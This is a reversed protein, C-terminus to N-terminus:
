ATEKRNRYHVTNGSYKAYRERHMKPIQSNSGLFYPLKWTRSGDKMQAEKCRYWTVNLLYRCKGKANAGAGHCLGSDFIMVSAPPLDPHVQQPDVASPAASSSAASPKCDHKSDAAPSVVTLGFSDGVGENHHFNGTMNCAINQRDVDVHLPQASSKPPNESTQVAMPIYAEGDLTKAHEAVAQSLEQNHELLKWFLLSQIESSYSKIKGLLKADLNLIWCDPKIEEESLVKAEVLQKLLKKSPRYSLIGNSSDLTLLLQLILETQKNKSVLQVKKIM